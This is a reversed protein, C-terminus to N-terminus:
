DLVTRYGSGTYERQKWVRYCGRPLVITAHEPHVLLTEAATVVLYRDSDVSEYLRATRPDSIRHSHGTSDGSALVPRQLQTAGEPLADTEQILVDGQRWM